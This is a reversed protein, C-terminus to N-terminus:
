SFVLQRLKEGPHEAAMCAEGILFGYVGRELMRHVDAATHIGSETIILKDQPILGILDLTTALSTEFTHLNRNNIGILDTPLELARELEAQNHVEVLIDIDIDNAYAALDELQAQELAAVILLICDAGLVRSEAIQYADIMFDKRLVPLSCAARAQQLYANSGQFFKEDTLISLCTAGHEAYDQAHAAPDFQARILGKSPSAKKIEAIVAPQKQEIRQRLAQQFPRRQELTPFRNELASQSISVKAAAVEGAKHQLINDLITATAL